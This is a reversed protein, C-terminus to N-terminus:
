IHTSMVTGKKVLMIIIIIIIIIITTTTTTTKTKKKNKNRKNCDKEEKYKEQVLPSGWREPKL